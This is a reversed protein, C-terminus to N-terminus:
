KPPGVRDGLASAPTTMDADPLRTNPGLIPGAPSPLGPLSNETPLGPAAGPGQLAPPVARPSFGPNFGPGQPPLNPGGPGFMPGTQAGQPPMPVFPGGAGGPPMMPAGPGQPPMGMAPMGAPPMGGPPMPPMAGPPMMPGGPGFMPQGPPPGIQIAPTGRFPGGGMMPPGFPMMPGAPGMGMGPPPMQPAPGPNGLPPTNPAEQDMNGMRIVLLISGRRLAEAIPDAGPELRTSLIEETGTGALEQYQPDPLYIVKVVYNGEAIQKFDENTFDVPVASHSLFAETKPNAPVVELTPYIELGPRGEINSLKLRYIAAQLFNYRGPAEIPMASYSPKGDSGVTYWSIKMGSPRGFRVQTRQTPFRVQNVVAGVAAVAGPPNGPYSVQMIGGSPAAGPPVNAQILSNGSSPMGPMGPMGPPSIVGGAPMITNPLLAGPSMGRSGGGMGNMQVMDLPVSNSLMAQAALAGPPPASSYPPMMPMAQGWAGQVGPVAPPAYPGGHSPGVPGAGTQPASTCGGLGVLVVLVFANRRM